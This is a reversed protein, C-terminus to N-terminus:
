TRSIRANPDNWTPKLSEDGMAVASFMSFQRSSPGM